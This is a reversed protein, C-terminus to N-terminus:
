QNLNPEFPFKNLDIKSKIQTIENEISQNPSNIFRLLDVTLSLMGDYVVIFFHTDLFPKNNILNETQISYHHYQSYYKFIQYIYGYTMINLEKIRNSKEIETIFGGKNSLNSIFNKNSTIRFDKKSKLTYDGNVSEKYFNPNQEILWSKQKNFQDTIKSIDQNPNTTLLIQKQFNYMETQFDEIFKLNECAI